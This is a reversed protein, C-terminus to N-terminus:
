GIKIAASIKSQQKALDTLSKQNEKIEKNNKKGEGYFKKIGKTKDNELDEAKDRNAWYSHKLFAQNNLETYIASEKEINKKNM